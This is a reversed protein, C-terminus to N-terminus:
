TSRTDALWRSYYQTPHAPGGSAADDGDQAYPSQFAAQTVDNGERQVEPDRRHERREVPSATTSDMV